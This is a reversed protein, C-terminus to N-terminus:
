RDLCSRNKRAGSRGLVAIRDFAEFTLTSFDPYIFGLRDRVLDEVRGDGSTEMFDGKGGGGRSGGEEGEPQRAAGQRTSPSGKM